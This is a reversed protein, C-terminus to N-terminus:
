AGVALPLAEEQSDSQSVGQKGKSRGAVEFNVGLMVLFVLLFHAQHAYVPSSITVYHPLPIIILAAVLLKAYPVKRLMGTAGMVLILIIPVLYQAGRVIRHLYFKVSGERKSLSPLWPWQDLLDTCWFVYVRRLTRGLTAFPHSLMYDVALDAARESYKAEGLERYLSMEERRLTPHRSARTQVVSGDYYNGQLIEVGLNSRLFAGKGVVVVNRVSWPLVLLLALSASLLLLGREADRERYLFLYGLLIWPLPVPNILLAMGSTVGLVLATMKEGREHFSILSTLVLLLSLEQWTYYWPLTTIFYNEPWLALAASLSFTLTPTKVGRSLTLRELLHMYIVCSISRSLAQLTFIAVLSPDTFIGFVRFVLSWLFPILPAIWATPTDGDGFPSSFGRGSALNAAISGLEFGNGIKSWGEDPFNRYILAARISLALLFILLFRVKSLAITRWANGLSALLTINMPLMECSLEFYKM